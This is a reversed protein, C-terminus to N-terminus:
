DEANWMVQIKPNRVHSELFFRRGVGLVSEAVLNAVCSDLCCQLFKKYVRM